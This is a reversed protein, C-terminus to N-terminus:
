DRGSETISYRTSTATERAFPVVSLRLLHGFTTTCAYLSAINERTAREEIARKQM